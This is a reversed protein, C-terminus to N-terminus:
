DAKRGQPEYPAPATTSKSEGHNRLWATREAYDGDDEWLRKAM